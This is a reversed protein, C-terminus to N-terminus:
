PIEQTNRRTYRQYIKAVLSVLKMIFFASDAGNVIDLQECHYFLICRLFFKTQLITEQFPSM